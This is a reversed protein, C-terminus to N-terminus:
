KAFRANLDALVAHKEERTEATTHVIFRTLEGRTAFWGEVQDMNEATKSSDRFVVPQNLDPNYYWTRVRTVYPVRCVRDVHAALGAHKGRNKDEFKREKDSPDLGSDPPLVKSARASFHLKHTEHFLTGMATLACLTEGDVDECEYLTALRQDGLELEETTGRALLFFAEANALWLSMDLSVPQPPLTVVETFAEFLYCVPIGLSQGIMGAFSIQAKYGGTANILVRGAGYREVAESVLRVLSKLGQDAFRAPDQHQLGDVTHAEVNNFAEPNKGTSHYHRLIEGVRAGDETDSVLLLLNQRQDLLGASLIRTISNIEAGCTRDTPDHKALEVALGKANGDDYLKRLGPDDLRSLNGVLSTGVTCILTDRM